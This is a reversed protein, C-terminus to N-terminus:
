TGSPGSPGPITRQPRKRKIHVTHQEVGLTTAQSYMLIWRDHANESIDGVM